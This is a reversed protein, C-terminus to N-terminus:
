RVAPARGPTALTREYQGPPSADRRAASPAAASTVASRAPASRSAARVASFSTGPRVPRWPTRSTEAVPPAQTLTSALSCLWRSRIRASSTAAGTM